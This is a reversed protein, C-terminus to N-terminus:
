GRRWRQVWVVIGAVLILGPLLIVSALFIFNLSIKELPILIRPIDEKPTLDILTEQESVWDVSNMIINLNGPTFYFAEDSAFDSDGFVVLRTQKEFDELTVALTVPGLLDEGEDPQIPPPDESGASEILTQLDSEAWSERATLVLDQLRASTVSSDPTVSRATPYMTTLTQMGKTIIHDGYLGNFPWYPSLSSNPDVLMDKGLTIGWQTSLYEALPDPSDGYDTMPLPEEMVIMSGGMELYASLLDVEEQSLPIRPGAIILVEADQPIKGGSILNLKEVTYNKAELTSKVRSYSVEGMGDPDYEGHGTLFYVKIEGPSILRVLAGTIELEDVLNVQEQHDDLVLVITGAQTVNYREATLPDERPNIFRYEIKGDSHLKYQDLLADAQDTSYEPTYFGFISVKGPLRDITEITEPALTFKETETFDWRIPNMYVLYNIAVLIGIFAVGLIIANSGYRAQRGTFAARARDPDLIVFLGIGIVVMVLSVQIALSFERQIIFLGITVLASILAIILGLPAIRTLNSKM